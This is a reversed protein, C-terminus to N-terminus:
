CYSIYNKSDKLGLNSCAKTVNPFVYFAGEPVLCKIGKIDNLGSVILDSREKFEKVMRM